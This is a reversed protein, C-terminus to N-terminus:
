AKVVVGDEMCGTFSSHFQRPRPVVSNRTLLVGADDAASAVRIWQVQSISCSALSVRAASAVSTIRSPVDREGCLCVQLPYARGEWRGGGGDGVGRGDNARRAM